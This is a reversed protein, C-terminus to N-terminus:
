IHSRIWRVVDPTNWGYFAVLDDIAENLGFTETADDPMQVQQEELIPFEYATGQHADGNKGLGAHGRACCRSPNTSTGGYYFFTREMYPVKNWGAEMADALERLAVRKQRKNM